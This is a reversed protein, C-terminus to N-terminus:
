FRFYGNSSLLYFQGVTSLISLLNTGLSFGHFLNFKSRVRLYEKLLLISYFNYYRL